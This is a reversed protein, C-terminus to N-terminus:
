DPLEAHHRLHGEHQAGREADVAQQPLPERDSRYDAEEDLADGRQRYRRYHREIRRAIGGFGVEHKDWDERKVKSEPPSTTKLKRGELGYLIAHRASEPLKEWPTDLSFKM